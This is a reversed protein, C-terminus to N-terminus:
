KKGHRQGQKSKEMEAKMRQGNHMRMSAFYSSIKQSMLWWQNKPIDSWEMAKEIGTASISEGDFIMPSFRLIIDMAVLNNKILYPLPCNTKCNYKM